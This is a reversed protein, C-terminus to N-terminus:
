FSGCRYGLQRPLLVYLWRQTWLDVKGEKVQTLSLTTTPKVPSLAAPSAASGCRQALRHFHPVSNAYPDLFRPSLGGFRPAILPAGLHFLFRLPFGLRVNVENNKLSPELRRRRRKKGIGDDSLRQTHVPILSEGAPQLGETGSRAAPSQIAWDKLTGQFWPSELLSYVRQELSPQMM